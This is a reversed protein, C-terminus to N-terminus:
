RISGGIKEALDLHDKAEVWAYGGLAAIAALDSASMYFGDAFLVAANMIRQKEM